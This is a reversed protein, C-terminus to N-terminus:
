GSRGAQASSATAAMPRPQAPWSGNSASRARKARGAPRPASVSEHQLSVMQLIGTEDIELGLGSGLTLPQGLGLPDLQHLGLWFFQDQDLREALHRQGLHAFEVFQFRAGMVLIKILPELEVTEKEVARIAFGAIGVGGEDMVTLPQYGETGLDQGVRAQQTTTVLEAHFGQGLGQFYQTQETQHPHPPTPVRGGPGLHLCAQNTVLRGGRAAGRRGAQACCVTGALLAPPLPLLPGASIGKGVAWRRQGDRRPYGM